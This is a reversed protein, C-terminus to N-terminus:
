TEIASANHVSHMSSVAGLVDVQRQYCTSHTKNVGAEKMDMRAGCFLNCTNEVELAKVSGLFTGLCAPQVIWPTGLGFIFQNALAPMSGILSHIGQARAASQLYPRKWARSCLVATHELGGLFAM